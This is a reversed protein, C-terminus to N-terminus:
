IEPKKWCCDKDVWCYEKGGKTYDTGWDELHLVWREPYRCSSCMPLFSPGMKMKCETCGLIDFCDGAEIFATRPQIPGSKPCHPCDASITHGHEICWKCYSVLCKDKKDKEGKPLSPLPRRCMRCHRLTM